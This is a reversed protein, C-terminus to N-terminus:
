RWITLHKRYVRHADCSIQWRRKGPLKDTAAHCIHQVKITPEYYIKFGKEALQKSLFYEEYMLFTPSWLQKFHKFFLPGLIYCAGYGQYIEQAVEHQREDKRDTFRHTIKSVLKILGALLYNLHYLDYIFERFKSIESIVHPNQYVGDITIINPSIVPYKIFNEQSSAASSYFDGSIILDNNGIVLFEVDAYNERIYRIGINLGSFYGLNETNYIVKVLPYELEIEKLNSVDQENSGNDVVVIPSDMVGSNRVSEIFGKTYHSNNFNTVVFGM